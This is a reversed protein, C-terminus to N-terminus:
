LTFLFRKDICTVRAAYGVFKVGVVSFGEVFALGHVSAGNVRLGASHDGLAAGVSGADVVDVPQFQLGVVHRRVAVLVMVQRGDARVVCRRVALVNRPLLGVTVAVSDQRQLVRGSFQSRNRLDNVSQTVRVAVLINLDVLGWDALGRLDLQHVRAAQLVGFLWDEGRNQVVLRLVLLLM